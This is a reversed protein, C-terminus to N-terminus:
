RHYRLCCLRREVLQREVSLQQLAGLPNREADGAPNPRTM